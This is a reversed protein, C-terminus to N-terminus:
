IHGLVSGVMQGVAMVLGAALWVSGCGLFLTLAAVNSAVNMVKAYATAKSFNFGLGMVFALLIWVLPHERHPWLLPFVVEYVVFYGILVLLVLVVSLVRTDRLWRM